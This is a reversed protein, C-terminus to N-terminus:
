NVRAANKQIESEISVRIRAIVRDLTRSPIRTQLSIAKLSIGPCTVFLLWAELHARNLNEAAKHVARLDASCKSEFLPSKKLGQKAV